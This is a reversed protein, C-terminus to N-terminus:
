GYKNEIAMGYGELYLKTDALRKNGFLSWMNAENMIVVQKHADKRSLKESYIGRMDRYEYSDFIDRIYNAIHTKGSDSEGHFILCRRKKDKEGLILIEALNRVIDYYPSEIGSLHKLLIEKNM